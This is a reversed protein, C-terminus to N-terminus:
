ARRREKEAPADIVEQKRANPFAATGSAAASCATADSAPRLDRVSARPGLVVGHDGQRGAPPAPSRAAEPGPKGLRSFLQQHSFLVLKKAKGGNAATSQKLVLNLWAVQENDMDHDVYATDLVVLLWHANEFALYSSKQGIAPLALDFYGFGGSYMEHNSNM